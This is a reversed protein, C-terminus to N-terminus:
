RLDCDFAHHKIANRRKRRECPSSPAALRMNGIRLDLSLTLWCWLELPVAVAVEAEPRLSVAAAAAAAAPVEREPVVTTRRVFPWLGCSDDVLRGQPGRAHVAAPTVGSSPLSM